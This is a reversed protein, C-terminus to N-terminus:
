NQWLGCGRVFRMDKARVAVVSGRFELAMVSGDPSRYRCRVITGPVLGYDRLRHKLHDHTCIQTVVAIKDVCLRDLTIEM